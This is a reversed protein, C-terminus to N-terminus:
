CILLFIEIDRSFSQYLQLGDHLQLKLVIDTSDNM